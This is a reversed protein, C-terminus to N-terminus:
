LIYITYYDHYLDNIKMSRDHMCNPLELIKDVMPDDGDKHIYTVNYRDYTLYNKNDAKLTDIKARSYVIAPYVMKTGEPPQFYIQDPKDFIQHLERSLKARRDAVGM